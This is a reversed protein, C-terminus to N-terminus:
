IQCKHRQTYNIWKETAVMQLQYDIQNLSLSNILGERGLGRGTM